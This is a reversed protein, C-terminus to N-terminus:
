GGPWAPSSPGLKTGPALVTIAVGAVEGTTTQGVLVREGTRDAARVLVSAAINGSADSVVTLSRGTGDSWMLTVPTNPAFGGGSVEARSGAVITPTSTVMVPRNRGDGSLLITAYSGSTTTVVAAATRRGAGTPNFVVQVTCTALADIARGGCDSAVVTFDQPHEGAVAISAIRLPGYSVNQVTFGMPQAAPTGVILAGAYGGGPAVSLETAGGTGSLQASVQGAGFGAEFVTLTATHVGPSSPVMIVNITCSSGAEVVVHDDICSGGNLYFDPDSITASAPFFSAPGHNVLVLFWEPSPMDVDVSGMDLDAIEVQAAVDLVAIQRGTVDPDAFVGGALTDFVVVRGTSSLRPHANAAPAPTVGDALVSVRQLEGTAPLARVIDGDTTSGGGGSRTPLLNTSRTVFLVEGDSFGLAPQTAGLDAATATGDGASPVQSILRLSADERGYLYVQPACDPNCGPLEVGAVLKATSVFAVFRGDGSVSPSDADGAAGAVASVERVATTPDTDFRNWVFVRSTADEGPMLGGGWTPQAETSNADSTFALISGDFSISPQSLGHQRFAGNPAEIPTGQVPLSRGPEGVAIALDVVMVGTVGDDSHDFHHTYAVVSGDASVAPRDTPVVDDAASVDFGSGRTSVLEVDGLTGGCAPLEQRYVDWRGVHDDDRFLDFPIETLFTVTCGDASLVPWASEGAKLDANQPTIEVRSGDSRDLLWISRVRGDAQAPAGAYAVFRGDGSVSPMDAAVPADVIESTVPETLDAPRGATAQSVGLAVLTVATSGLLLWRRSVSSANM